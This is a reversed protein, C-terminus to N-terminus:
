LRGHYCSRVEKRLSVHCSKVVSLVRFVVKLVVKLALTVFMRCLCSTGTSSGYVQQASCRIVNSDSKLSKATIRMLTSEVCIDSNNVSDCYWPRVNEYSM